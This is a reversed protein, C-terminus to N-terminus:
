PSQVHRRLVLVAAGARVVGAVVRRAVPRLAVALRCSLVVEFVADTDEVRVLFRLREAVIDNALVDRVPVAHLTVRGSLRDQRRAALLLVIRGDERDIGDRFLVLVALRAFREREHDAPRLSVSQSVM